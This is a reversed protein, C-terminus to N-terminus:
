RHGILNLKKQDDADPRENDRGACDQKKVKGASIGLRVRHIVEKDTEGDKKEEGADGDDDDPSRAQFISYLLM